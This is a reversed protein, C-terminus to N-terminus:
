VVLGVEVGGTGGGGAEVCGWGGTWGKEDWRKVVWGVRRCGLEGRM